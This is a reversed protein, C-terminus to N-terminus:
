PSAKAGSKVVRHVAVGIRIGKVVVVVVRPLQLPPKAWTVAVRSDSKEKREGGEM